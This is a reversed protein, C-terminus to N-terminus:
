DRRLEALTEEDLPEGTFLDLGQDYRSALLEVRSAPPRQVTFENQVFETTRRSPISIESM